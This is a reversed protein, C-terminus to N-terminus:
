KACFKKCKLGIRCIVLSFAIWLIVTAFGMLVSPKMITYGKYLIDRLSITPLTFPLLYAVYRFYWPITELPWFIGCFIIMPYFILTSLFQSVVFSKSLISVALGYIIGTLGVLMILIGVTIDNGRNEMQYIYRSVIFFEISQLCMISMNTIIHSILIEIPRVGALLTRDWIGDVRDNVFASSTLMAALFFYLTIFIGPAMSRKMEDDFSGYITEFAIPISGIRRSKGCDIMIQEMVNQFMNNLKRQLIFTIQRDTQDLYVQIEHITFNSPFYIIGIIRGMKADNFADDYNNYFKKIAISDNLQNIFRCSSKHIHCNNQDIQAMLLLPNSCENSDNVEHSVIGIELGKPDNGIALFFSMLCLFPTFLLFALM